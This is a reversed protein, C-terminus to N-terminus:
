WCLIMVEWVVTINTTLSTLAEFRLFEETYAGKELNIRRENTDTGEPHAM